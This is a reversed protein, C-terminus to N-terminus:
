ESIPKPISCLIPYFEMLDQNSMLHICKQTRKIEIFKSYKKVHCNIPVVQLANIFRFDLSFFVFARTLNKMFKMVFFAFRGM